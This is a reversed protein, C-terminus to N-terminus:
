KNKPEQWDGETKILNILEDVAEAQKVGRRVCKQGKYLDIKEPSSGVYGYDADAMEGPGNVICGMIGIKLGKLHQTATKVQAITDQLDYLTRGCGPCSIFETKSMRLRTAQLIGYQTALVPKTQIKPATLYLGNAWGDIFITGADAAAQLRFLEIDETDYQHCLIIPNKIGLRRLVTFGLRWEAVPNNNPSDLLIVTEAENLLYKCSEENISRYDLKVTKVEIQEDFQSLYLKGDKEQLDALMTEEKSLVLPLNGTFPMAKPLRVSKREDKTFAKYEEWTPLLHSYDQEIVSRSQVYEVLAKAVPVEFEPEESLSVRITDGIGDMLLSGIGVASKIRGDEGEGAETVGLHLPYAPYGGKDLEEVLMRVATTMVLTNSSKMSIVVDQFDNERCVDLYELCSAVMGYPTDGHLILMRESLSGHNVGIRIARGLSKAERVFAGFREIVKDHCEKHLEATWERPTSSKTDVYNGPNVRVKEVHLLAEDAAKPNFHIDAVLPVEYKEVGKHINALNKAERVGQATFRVYDAGAEIIRECQAISAETDMTSTSAMSQLRIPNDGGIPRSGIQSISSKRRKYICPQLIFDSTQAKNM